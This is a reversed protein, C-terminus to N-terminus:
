DVKINKEKALKSWRVIGADIMQRIEAPTDSREAISLSSLRSAFAPTKTIQTTVERLRNLIPEPTGTPAFLGTWLSVDLDIGLEKM